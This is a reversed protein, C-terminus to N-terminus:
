TTQLVMQFAQALHRQGSPSVAPSAEEQSTRSQLHAPELCAPHQGLLQQLIQLAAAM